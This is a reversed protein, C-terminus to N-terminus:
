GNARGRAFDESGFESRPLKKIVDVIGSEGTATV